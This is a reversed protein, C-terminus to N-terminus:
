RTLRYTRIQFALPRSLSLIRLDIQKLDPTQRKLFESEPQKITMEWGFGPFEEGFDGNLSEGDKRGVWEADSIKKQALMPAIINFQSDHTNSLTSFHLQYVAIFVIGVVSLAVMIELFTFGDPLKSKVVPRTRM